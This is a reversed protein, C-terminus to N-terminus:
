VEYMEAERLRLFKNVSFYTCCLTIFLGCLLVCGGVILLIQPTILAAAGADYRVLLQVGAWLFGNAVTASVVGLWFSRKMFPARIFGWGAGVLKMTHILFRQSYISLRVTNNILGVSVILLLGALIAFVLGVKRLNDNLNDILEKQYVVDAVRKDAKLHQSIALLSDTNAYEAEVQLELSATFPNTGLFETPDSGMAAIQEELAQESTVVTVQNTFLETSLLTAYQEAVADNVEDALMVTVTLNERVSESLRDAMLVFFVVMGLLMLVLTTSICSTFMQM